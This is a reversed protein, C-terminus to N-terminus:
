PQMKVPGDPEVKDSNVVGSSSKSLSELDRINNSERVRAKITKKIVKDM